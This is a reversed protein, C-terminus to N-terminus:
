VVKLKFHLYIQDKCQWRVTQCSIHNWLKVTIQALAIPNHNTTNLTDARPCKKKEHAALKQQKINTYSEVATLVPSTHGPHSLTLHQERPHIKTLSLRIHYTVYKPNKSVYTSLSAWHFHQCHQWSALSVKTIPGVITHIFTQTVRFSWM